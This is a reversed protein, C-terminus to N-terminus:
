FVPSKESIQLYIPRFYNSNVPKALQWPNSLIKARLQRSEFFIDRLIGHDNMLYILTVNFSACNRQQNEFLLHNRLTKNLLIIEKEKSGYFLCLGVDRVHLSREHFNNKFGKPLNLRIREYM